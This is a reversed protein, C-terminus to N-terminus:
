PHGVQRLLGRKRGRVALCFRHRALDSFQEFLGSPSLDGGTRLDSRGASGITARREQGSRDRPEEDVVGSDRTGLHIWASSDRYSSVGAREKDGFQFEDIMSRVARLLSRTAAPADVGAAVRSWGVLM